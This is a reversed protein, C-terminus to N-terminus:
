VLNARLRQAPVSDQEAVARATPNPRRVTPIGVPISEATTYAGGRLSYTPDGGVRSRATRETVPLYIRARVHEHPLPWPVALDLHSPLPRINPRAAALAVRAHM